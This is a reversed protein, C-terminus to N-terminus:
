FLLMINLITSSFYCEARSIKAINSAREMGASLQIIGGYAQFAFLISDIVFKCSIIPCIIRLLM